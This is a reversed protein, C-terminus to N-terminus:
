AKKVEILVYWSYWRLGARFLLDDVHHLGSRVLHGVGTSHLPVSLLTLLGFYRITIDPFLHSMIEFDSRKLPHEDDTRQKPTLWRYLNFIPNHGLPEAFLAIGRPRLVRHIESMSRAVDLHHLIASGFLFDFSEDEFTMAEANMAMFKVNEVGDEACQQNALSVAVDSLDIGVVTKARSAILRSLNGMGCGYELVDRGKCHALVLQGYLNLGHQIAFYYKNQAARNEEQHLFHRNHFERERTLRLVDTLPTIELDVRKM